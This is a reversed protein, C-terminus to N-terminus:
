SSKKPSSKSPAAADQAAPKAPEPQAKTKLQKKLRAAQSQHDSYTKSRDKPMAVDQWM